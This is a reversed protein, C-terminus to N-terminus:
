LNYAVTSLKFGTSGIASSFNVSFGTQSINSVSLLYSYNYPSVINNVLIPPSAFSKPFLINMSQVGSPIDTNFPIIGSISKFTDFDLHYYNNQDGGQLGSLQNHNIPDSNGSYHTPAHRTLVTASFPQISVTTGGQEQIEVDITECNM